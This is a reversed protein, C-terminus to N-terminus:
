VTGPAVRFNVHFRHLDLHCVFLTSVLFADTIKGKWTLFVACGIAALAVVIFVLRLM